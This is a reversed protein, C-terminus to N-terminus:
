RPHRALTFRDPHANSVAVLVAGRPGATLTPSRWCRAPPPARSDPGGTAEVPAVPGALPGLVHTAVLLEEDISRRGGLTLQDTPAYTRPRACRGDRDGQPRSRPTSRPGRSPALSSLGADFRLNTEVADLDRRLARLRSAGAGVAAERWRVTIADRVARRRGARPALEGLALEGGGVTVDADDLALLSPVARAGDGLAPAVDAARRRV